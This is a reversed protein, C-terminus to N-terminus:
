HRDALQKQRFRPLEDDNENEHQQAADLPTARRVQELDVALSSSDHSHKDGPAGHQAGAYGHWEEADGSCQHDRVRRVSRPAARRV